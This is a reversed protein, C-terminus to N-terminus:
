THMVTATLLVKLYIASLNAAFAHGVIMFNHAKFCKLTTSSGYKSFEFALVVAEETQVLFRSRHQRCLRSEQKVLMIM